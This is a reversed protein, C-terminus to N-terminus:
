SCPQRLCIAGNIGGQALRENQYEEVLNVHQKSGNITFRSICLSMSNKIVQFSTYVSNSRELSFGKKALFKASSNVYSKGLRVFNGSM